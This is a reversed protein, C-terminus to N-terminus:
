SASETGHSAHSSVRRMCMGVKVVKLQLFSGSKMLTFSHFAVSPATQQVNQYYKCALPSLFHSGQLPIEFFSGRLPYKEYTERSDYLRMVGERTFVAALGATWHRSSVWVATCLKFNVVATFISSGQKSSSRNRKSSNSMANPSPNGEPQPSETLVAVKQSSALVEQQPSTPSLSLSRDSNCDGYSDPSNLRVHLPPPASRRISEAGDGTNPAPVIDSPLSVHMPGTIRLPSFYSEAYYKQIKGYRSNYSTGRAYRESLREDLSRSRQSIEAEEDDLAAREFLIGATEAARISPALEPALALKIATTGNGTAWPPSKMPSRGRSRSSAYECANAKMNPESAVVVSADDCEHNKEEEARAPKLESAVYEPPANDTDQGVHGV